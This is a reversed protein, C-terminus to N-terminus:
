TTPTVNIRRKTLAFVEFILYKKRGSTEHVSRGDTDRCTPTAGYRQRLLALKGDVLRGHEALCRLPDGRLAEAEEVAAQGPNAVFAHASDFELTNSWYVGWELLIPFLGREICLHDELREELDELTPMAQAPTGNIGCATDVRYMDDLRCQACDEDELGLTARLYEKGGDAYEHAVARTRTARTRTM